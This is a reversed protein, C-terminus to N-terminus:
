SSVETHVSSFLQVKATDLFQKCEMDTTAKSKEETQASHVPGFISM